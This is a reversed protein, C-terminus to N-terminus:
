RAKRKRFLMLVGIPLVVGVPMLIPFCVNEMPEIVGIVLATEVPGPPYVPPLTPTPTAYPLPITKFPWPTSESVPQNPSPTSDEIICIYFPCTTVTPRPTPLPPTTTPRPTQFTVAFNLSIFLLFALLMKPNGQKMGVPIIPAM